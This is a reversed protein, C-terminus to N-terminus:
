NTIKVIRLGYDANPDFTVDGSDLKLNELFRGEFWFSTGYSNKHVEQIFFGAFGIITMQTHDSTNRSLMSQVIPILIVRGDGVKAKTYDTNTDRSVRRAFADVSQQGGSSPAYYYMKENISFTDHYGFELWNVYESFGTNNKIYVNMYDFQYPYINSKQTLTSSTSKTVASSIVFGTYQTTGSTYTINYYTTGSVSKSYNYVVVTNSPITALKTNSASTSADKKLDVSKNTKYVDQYSYTDSLPYDKYVPDSTYDSPYSYGSPYPGVGYMRMVYVQDYNFSPPEPIVFPVIWPVSAAIGTTATSNASISNNNIGFIKAFFKPSTRNVTVTISKNDGAIAITINDSAKVGNNTLYTQAYTSAQTPDDPLEQVGALAAADAARQLESKTVYAVGLDLSLAAFGLLVALVVAFVVLVQGSEENLMKIKSFMRCVNGKQNHLCRKM